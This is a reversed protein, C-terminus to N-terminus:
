QEFTFVISLIRDVTVDSTIFNANLDAINVKTVNECFRNINTYNISMNIQHDVNLTTRNSNSRWIYFTKPVANVNCLLLDYQVSALVTSQLQYPSSTLKDQLYAVMFSTNFTSTMNFHVTHLQAKKKGRYFSYQLISEKVPVTFTDQQLIISLESATLFMPAPAVPSTSASAAQSSSSSSSAYFFNV